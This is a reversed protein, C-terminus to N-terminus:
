MDDYFTVEGIMRRLSELYDYFYENECIKDDHKMAGRLSSDIDYLVMRYDKARLITTIDYSDEDVDLEYTITMKTM